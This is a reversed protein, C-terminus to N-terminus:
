GNFYDELRPLDPEIEDFSSPLPRQGASVEELLSYMFQWSDDRLAILAAAENAFKSVASTSYTAASIIHDYGLSQAAADLRSQVKNVFAQKIIESQEKLRENIESQPLQHVSWVRRYVDEGTIRTREINWMLIERLPDYVPKDTEVVEHWGLFSIDARDPLSINLGARIEDITEERGLQANWYSKARM